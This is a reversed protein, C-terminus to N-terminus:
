IKARSYNAYGTGVFFLYIFLDEQNIQTVLINCSLKDNLLYFNSIGCTSRLQCNKNIKQDVCCFAKLLVSVTQDYVVVTRSHQSQLRVLLHQPLQHFEFDGSHPLHHHFVIHHPCQHDRAPEDTEINVNQRHLHAHTYKKISQIVVILINFFISSLFFISDPFTSVNKFFFFFFM